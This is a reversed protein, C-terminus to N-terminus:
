GMNCLLGMEYGLLDNDAKFQDAFYENNCPKILRSYQRYDESVGSCLANARQSGLGGVTTM